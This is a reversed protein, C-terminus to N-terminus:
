KRSTGTVSLLRTRLTLADGYKPYLALASTVFTNAKVKDPTILRYYNAMNYHLLPHRKDYTLGKTFLTKIKQIIRRPITFLNENKRYLAAAKNNYYYALMTLHPLPIVKKHPTSIWKSRSTQTLDIPTIVNPKAPDLHVGVCVHTISTIDWQNKYVMLFRPKLGAMRFIPYFIYNLETCHAKPKPTTLVALAGREQEVDSPSIRNPAIGLGDQNKPRVVWAVLAKTLALNYAKTNPRLRKQVLKTKITSIALRIKKVLKADKTTHANFDDIIWPVRLDSLFATRSVLYSLTTRSVVSASTSNREADLLKLARALLEGREIRKNGKTRAVTSIKPTTNKFNIYPIGKDLASASLRKTRTFFNYLKRSAADTAALRYTPPTM